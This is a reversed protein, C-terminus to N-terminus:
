LTLPVKGSLRAGLSLLGPALRIAALSASRAPDSM